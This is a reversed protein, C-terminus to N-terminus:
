KDKKPTDSYRSSALGKVQSTVISPSLNQALSTALPPAAPKQDQPLAQSPVKSQVPPPVKSQVPPPVKSQVPPPVKPQVPSHPQKPAPHMARNAGHTHVQQHQRASNPNINHQQMQQPQQHGPLIMRPGPLPVSLQQQVPYLTPQQNFYPSPMQQSNPPGQSNGPRVLQVPITRNLAEVAQQRTHDADSRIRTIMNNVDDFKRWYRTGDSAVMDVFTMLCQAVMDQKRFAAIASTYYTSQNLVPPRYKECMDMLTKDMDEDYKELKEIKREAITAAGKIHDLQKLIDETADDKTASAKLRNEVDILRADFDKGAKDQTRFMEELSVLTKSARGQAAVLCSVMDASAKHKQDSAKELAEIRENADILVQHKQDSDEELVETRERANLLVKHKQDSDEELAEIRENASNLVQNNQDSDEELAKIRKNAKNLVELLEAERGAARPKLSNQFARVDDISSQMTDLRLDNSTFREDISELEASAGHHKACHENVNAPQYTSKAEVAQIRELLGSIEAAFQFVKEESLRRLECNADAESNEDKSLQGKVSRNNGDVGNIVASPDDITGTTTDNVSTCNMAVSNIRNELRHLYAAQATMSDWQYILASLAGLLGVLGIVVCFFPSLAHLTDVLGSFGSAITSALASLLAVIRPLAHPFFKSEGSTQERSANPSSLTDTVPPTLPLIDINLPFDGPGDPYCLSEDSEVAYFTPPTPRLDLRDAVTGCGQPRLHDNYLYHDCPDSINPLDFDVRTPTALLIIGFVTVGSATALGVQHWPNDLDM